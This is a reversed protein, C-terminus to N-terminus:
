ESAAVNTRDEAGLNQLSAMLESVPQEEIKAVARIINQLAADATSRMALRRFKEIVAGVPMPQRFFGEFSEKEIELIRGDAVEIRIRCKLSQPYARTYGVNLWAVVKGLLSQVDAAAIRSEDFQDPGVEGDLLAVALLYQLSHSADERAAVATPHDYGAKFIDVQIRAVDPAQLQHAERMELMGEIASQAHFDANYRKLSCALVGDYSERDWDLSLQKGVLEELGLPGEFVNLPGTIGQRALRVNHICNFAIGASALGKWNSLREGTRTAGVGLGGAACLAIAHATQQETMKLIHSMGVALSISLQITHDFGKRMISAGSSTLACQVHYAIALAALFERGNAGALEAAALLGAVNDAPHATEGIALFTDTFDLYRVLAGNYFAAREPTTAGGGILSCPGSGGIARQEDRIAAIPGCTVAGLACGITDLLHQKLKGRAEPSVAEWSGRVCYAALRECITM